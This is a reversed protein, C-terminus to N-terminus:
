KYAYVTVVRKDVKLVKGTNEVNSNKCNLIKGLLM